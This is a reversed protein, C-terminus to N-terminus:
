MSQPLELDVLRWHLGQRELRGITILRAEDAFVRVRVASPGLWEMGIRRLLTRAAELRSSPPQGAGGGKGTSRQMM